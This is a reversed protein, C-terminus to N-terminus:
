NGKNFDPDALEYPENDDNIERENDEAGHTLKELKNRFKVLTERNKGIFARLSCNLRSWNKVWFVWKWIM